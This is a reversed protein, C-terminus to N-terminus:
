RWLEGEPLFRYHRHRRSQAISLATVTLASALNMKKCLPIDIEGSLGTGVQQLPDVDTEKIPLLTRVSFSFESAVSIPEAIGEQESSDSEEPKGPRGSLVDVRFLGAEDSTNYREVLAKGDSSSAPVGLQRTLFEYIPPTPTGDLQSGFEIDFSVLLLDIIAVGGLPPTHVHLEVGIEHRGCFQFWVTVGMSAQLFFPDWRIFVDIYVDLGAGIGAFEASLSVSAGAMIAQPTCAFFCEVSMRIFGYVVAKCGVRTLEPYYPPPNFYPHYGGISLLFDGNSHWIGLAFDGHLSFIDPHIIYSNKSLGAKILLKEEDATAEIGLEFYAIPSIGFSALGM